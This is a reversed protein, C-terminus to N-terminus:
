NILIHWDCVKSWTQIHCVLFMWFQTINGSCHDYCTTMFICSMKCSVFFLFVPCKVPCKYYFFIGYLAIKAEVVYLCDTLLTEEEKDDYQWLKTRSQWSYKGSIHCCPHISLSTLLCINQCEILNHALNIIVVCDAYVVNPFM